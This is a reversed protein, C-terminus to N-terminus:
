REAMLGSETLELRLLYAPVDHAAARALVM